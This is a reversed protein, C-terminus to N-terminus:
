LNKLEKDTKINKTASKIQKKATSKLEEAVIKVEKEIEKIDDGNFIKAVIMAVKRLTLRGITAILDRLCTNEYFWYWLISLLSVMIASHLYIGFSFHKIAFWVATAGFCLGVNAFALCARRLPKWPIRNFLLPKLIGILVTIASVMIVGAIL